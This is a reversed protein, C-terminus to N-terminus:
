ELLLLRSYRKSEVSSVRRHKRAFLSLATLFCHSSKFGAFIFEVPNRASYFHSFDEDWIREFQRKGSHIKDGLELLARRVMRACIYIQKDERVSKMHRQKLHISEAAHFSNFTSRLFIPATFFFTSVSSFLNNNHIWLCEYLHPPSLFVRFLIEGGVHSSWLRAADDALSPFWEFSKGVSQRFGRGYEATSIDERM